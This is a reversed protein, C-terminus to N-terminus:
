AGDEGALIISASGIEAVLLKMAEDPTFKANLYAQYLARRLHALNQIQEAEEQEDSSSANALFRTVREDNMLDGAGRM